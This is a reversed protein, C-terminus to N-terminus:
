VSTSLDKFKQLILELMDKYSLLEHVYTQPDFFKLIRHNSPFQNFHQLINSSSSEPYTHTQKYACYM